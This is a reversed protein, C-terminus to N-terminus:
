KKGSQELLYLEIAEDTMKTLDQIAQEVTYKPETAIRRTIDIFGKEFDAFMPMQAAYVNDSSQSQAEHLYVASPFKEKVFTQYEEQEWGSYTTPLYGSAMAFGASNDTRMLFKLFEWAGQLAETKGNNSIFLVGGGGAQGLSTKGAQITPSERFGFNLKWSSLDGVISTGSSYGTLIAVENNAFMERSSGYDNDYPVAWGKEFVTKTFTFYAHVADYVEKDEMFLSKTPVGEKGNDKDVYKLGQSVMSWVIFDTSPNFYYPYKSVGAKAIKEIAGLMEEYSKFDARPDVGVQKLMDENYFFGVVTNGLPISIWRGNRSYNGKLNVMIDSMDYSEADIFDQVPTFLDTNAISAVGTGNSAFIEPLNEKRTARVKTLVDNYSGQFSLDVIYNTQEKNFREAANQLFELTEGSNTVWVTVKAPDGSSGAPKSAPTEEKGTPAGSTAAPSSATGQTGSGSCAALVCMCLIVLVAVAQKTMSKNGM